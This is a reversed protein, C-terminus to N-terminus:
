RGNAGLDHRIRKWMARGAASPAPLRDITALIREGLRLSREIEPREAADAEPLKARLEELRAPLESRISTGIEHLWAGIGPGLARQLSPGSAPETVAEILDEMAQPRLEPRQELWADIDAQMAQVAAGDVTDKRPSRQAAELFRRLTDVLAALSGLGGENEHQQLWTGLAVWDMGEIRIPGKDPDLNSKPVPEPPRRSEGSFVLFGTLAVLALVLLPMALRTM